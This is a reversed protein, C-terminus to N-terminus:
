STPIDPAAGPKFGRMLLNGTEAETIIYMFGHSPEPTAGLPGHPPVFSGQMRTLYVVKGQMDPSGVLDDQGVARLAADASLRTIDLLQPNQEGMSRAESTAREILISRSTREGSEVYSWGPPDEPGFVEDDPDVPQATSTTSVMGIASGRSRQSDARSLILATALAVIMLSLALVYKM